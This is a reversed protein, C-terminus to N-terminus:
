CNEKQLLGLIKGPSLPFDRGQWLTAHGPVLRMDCYIEIGNGDPDTFNISWGIQHDVLSVPIAASTLVQYAHAFSYQDSVHFAINALGTSQASPIPANSGANQLTVDHHTEGYSLFAYTNGAREILNLGLIRTYFAISRDLNRVKIQIHGLKMQFNMSAPTAIIGKEDLQASLWGRVDELIQSTLFHGSPYEHYSVKMGWDTMTDRVIRGCVVPYIEDHLGHTIMVPFGTFADMKDPPVRMEPLLQGSLIAVGTLADIETILLQITMVAGQSFGVLYTQAPNTNYATVSESIFKALAQRSHELQLTNTLWDGSVLETQFWNYRGLFQDILGRVCIIMFREDFSSAIGLMEKESSNLGHLIMVLPPQRLSVKPSRIVHPLSLEIVNM